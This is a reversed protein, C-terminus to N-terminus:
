TTEQETKQTALQRAKEAAREYYRLRAAALDAPARGVPVRKANGCSPCRVVQGGKARTTFTHGSGCTLTVPPLAPPQANANTSSRTGVYRSHCM